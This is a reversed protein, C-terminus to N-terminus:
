EHTTEKEQLNKTPAKSVKVRAHRIIRDGCRYGRVFEELIIGEPHDTTEEVEVADHKYPDFLAGEATFPTVGHNNLVDKFQSLIMQFGMAWQKVDPSMSDTFKLANEFNDLPILIETLVNDIAFRTMEQREKQMRKRANDFDALLLLYKNKWNEEEEAPKEEVIPEEGLPAEQDTM